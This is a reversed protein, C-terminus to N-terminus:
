AEFSSTEFATVSDAKTWLGVRGWKLRADRHDLYVDVRLLTAEGRFSEIEQV